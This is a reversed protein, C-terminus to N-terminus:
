TSSPASIHCKEQALKAVKAEAKRFHSGELKAQEKHAAALRNSYFTARKTKGAQQKATLKAQLSSYRQNFEADLKSARNLKQQASGCNFHKLVEQFGKNVSNAQSQLASNSTSSSNAAGAVGGLGLSLGGVGAAAALAMVM